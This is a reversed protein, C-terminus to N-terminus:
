GWKTSWPCLLSCHLYLFSPCMAWSQHDSIWVALLRIKVMLTVRLIMWCTGVASRLQGIVAHRFLHKCDDWCRSRWLGLAKDGTTTKTRPVPLDHKMVTRTIGMVMNQRIFAGGVKSNVQVYIQFWQVSRNWIKLAYQSPIWPNVWYTENYDSLSLPKDEAEVGPGNIRRFVTNSVPVDFLSCLEPSGININLKFCTKILDMERRTSIMGHQLDSHMTHIHCDYNVLLTLCCATNKLKQLEDM